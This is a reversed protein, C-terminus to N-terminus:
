AMPDALRPSNVYPLLSKPDEREVKIGSLKMWLFIAFIVGVGCPVYIMITADREGGSKLVQDKVGGGASAAHVAPLAAAALCLALM